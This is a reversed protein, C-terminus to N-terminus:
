IFYEFEHTTGGADGMEGDIESKPTLQRLVIFGYKQNIWPKITYYGDMDTSTGDIIAGDQLLAINVMPISEANTGDIVRGKLTGSQSFAFSFSLFFLVFFTYSFRIM